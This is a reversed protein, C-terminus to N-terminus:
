GGQKYTAYDYRFTITLEVMDDSSYDLTGWSVDLIWPNFLKWTELPKNDPGMQQIKILGLHNTAKAKSMTHPADGTRDTPPDYGAARIAKWLISSADPEIPDVLTVSTSDWTVHGPYFFSHGFFKHETPNVTIKPKDVKKIVYAPLNDDKKTGAGIFLLWRHQRKPELRSDAWFKNAM